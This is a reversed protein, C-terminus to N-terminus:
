GCEDYEKIDKKLREREREREREEKKEEKRETVLNERRAVDSKRKRRL